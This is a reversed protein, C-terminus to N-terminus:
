FVSILKKLLYLFELNKLALEWGCSMRGSRKTSVFKFAIIVCTFDVAANPNWCFTHFETIWYKCWMQHGSLHKVLLQSLFLQCISCVSFYCLRSRLLLHLTWSQFLWMCVLTNALYGLSPIFILWGGSVSFPLHFIRPSLFFLAPKSWIKFFM